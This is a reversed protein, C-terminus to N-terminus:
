GVTDFFINIYGPKDSILNDLWAAANTSNSLIVSPVTPSFFCRGKCLRHPRTALLEPEPTLHAQARTWSHQRPAGPSQAFPRVEGLRMKEKCLPLLLANKM